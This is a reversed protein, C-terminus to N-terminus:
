ESSAMAAPDLNGRNREVSMISSILFGALGM